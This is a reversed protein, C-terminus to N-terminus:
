WGSLLQGHRAAGARCTEPSRPARSRLADRGDSLGYVPYLYLMSLLFKVFRMQYAIFGAGIRREPTYYNVIHRSHVVGPLRAHVMAHLLAYDSGITEISPLLPDAPRGALRHGADAASPM